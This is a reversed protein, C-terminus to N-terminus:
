RWQPQMYPCSIWFCLFCSFVTCVRTLPLAFGPATGDMYRWTIKRNNWQSGKLDIGELYSSSIQLHNRENKCFHDNAHCSSMVYGYIKKNSYQDSKYEACCVSKVDRWDGSM